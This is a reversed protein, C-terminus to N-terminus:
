YTRSHTHKLQTRTGHMTYSNGSSHWYYDDILVPGNNSITAPVASLLTCKMTSM